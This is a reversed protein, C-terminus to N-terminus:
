TGSPARLRPGPAARSSAPRRILSAVISRATSTSTRRCGPRPARCPPRRGRPPPAPRAAGVQALRRRPQRQERAPLWTSAPLVPAAPAACGSAPASPPSLPPPSSEAKGAHPGRPRRARRHRQAPLHSPQPRPRAALCLRAHGGGDGGQAAPPAAVWAPDVYVHCTSCACAGGRLQGRHRPHQQRAGSGDRHPRDPGRGPQPTGDHEIYTIKAM